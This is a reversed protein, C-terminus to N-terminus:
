DLENQTLNFAQLVKLLAMYLWVCLKKSCHINLQYHKSWLSHTPASTCECIYEASGNCKDLLPVYHECM